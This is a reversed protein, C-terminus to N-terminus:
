KIDNSVQQHMIPFNWSTGRHTASHVYWSSSPLHTNSHLLYHLINRQEQAIVPHCVSKHLYSMVSQIFLQYQLASNM